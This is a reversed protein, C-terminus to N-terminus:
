IRRWKYGAYYAVANVSMATGLVILTLGVIPYGLILLVLLFGLCLILILGTSGFLLLLFGYYIKKIFRVIGKFFRLISKGVTNEKKVKM